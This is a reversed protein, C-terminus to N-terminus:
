IHILSLFLLLALLILGVVASKQRFLRRLTLRWLTNARYDGISAVAADDLPPLTTVPTPESAISM